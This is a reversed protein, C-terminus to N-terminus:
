LEAGSGGLRRTGGLCLRGGRGMEHWDITLPYAEGKVRVTALPRLVGTELLPALTKGGGRNRATIRLQWTPRLGDQVPIFEAWLGTKRSLKYHISETM